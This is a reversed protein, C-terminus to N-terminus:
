TDTHFSERSSPRSAAEAATASAAPLGASFAALQLPPSFFTAIEERRSVGTGIVRSLRSTTTFSPQILFSSSQLPTLPSLAGAAQLYGACASSRIGPARAASRRRSAGAGS